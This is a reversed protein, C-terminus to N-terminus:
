LTRWVSLLEHLIRATAGWILHAGARYTHTDLFMGYAEVRSVGYAAEDLLAAFPVHLIEEVEGPAAAYPYPYPVSAVWPTLRFPTTLVIVETLRGLPTARRRDLGVEEHAERLAAELSEEGPDVAGGPFAIQGAHRRMTSPRLTLLVHPEGDKEHLPVLVSSHRFGGAPAHGPAVVSTPDPGIPRAALAAKLRDFTM